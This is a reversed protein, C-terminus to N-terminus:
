RHRESSRGGVHTVRHHPSQNRAQSSRRGHDEAVTDDTLERQYWHEVEERLGSGHVDPVWTPRVEVTLVPCRLPHTVFPTGRGLAGPRCRLVLPVLPVDAQDTLWFAGRQFAGLGTEPSRTGEPFILVRQGDRLRGGAERLISLQSFGGGGSSSIYGADRLLPGFWFGDMLSRKVLCCVNDHRAIIATVDLFTPHNAILICAGDPLPPGVYHMRFLRTASLWWHLTRFGGQVITQCLQRRRVPDVRAARLISCGIWSFLAGIPYFVAFSIGLLLVRLWRWLSRGLAAFGAPKKAALDPAPPHASESREMRKWLAPRPSMGCAKSTSCLVGGFAGGNYQGAECVCYKRM